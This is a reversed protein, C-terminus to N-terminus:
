PLAEFWDLVANRWLEPIGHGGKTIKLRITGNACEAWDKQMSGDDGFSNKASDMCGNQRRWVDVAKMVNGQEFDLGGWSLERGEFPVMRDKFGHTHFIHAPKLCTEPMPEWFAGAVAAFGKALDPAHCAVDWVMSGGRSFGAVLIRSQDLHFRKIADDLVIKLFDIDDREWGHGDSVGWDLDKKGPFPQGSPMIVAFGRQLFPDVYSPKQIMSKGSRGFGHLWLVAPPNEVAEPLAAYYEGYDMVCPMDPNGCSSELALTATAGFFMLAFTALSTLARSLM